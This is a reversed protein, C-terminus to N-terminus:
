KIKQGLLYYGTKISKPFTISPNISKLVKFMEDASNGYNMTIEHFDSNKMVLGVKPM